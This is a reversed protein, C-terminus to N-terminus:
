VRAGNQKGERVLTKKACRCNDSHVQICRGEEIYEVLLHGDKILTRFGYDCKPCNILM